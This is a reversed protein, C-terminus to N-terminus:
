ELCKKINDYYQYIEETLGLICKYGGLNYYENKTVVIRSHSFKEAEWLLQEATYPIKYRKLFGMVDEYAYYDSNTFFLKIVNLNREQINL